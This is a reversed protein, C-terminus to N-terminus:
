KHLSSLNGIVEQELLSLMVSLSVVFYNHGSTLM